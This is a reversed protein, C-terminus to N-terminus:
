PPPSTPPLVRTSVIPLRFPLTWVSEDLWMPDPQDADVYDNDDPSLEGEQVAAIEAVEAAEAVRAAEPRTHADAAAQVIAHYDHDATGDLVAIQRRRTLDLRRARETLM